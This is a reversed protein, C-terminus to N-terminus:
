PGAAKRRARVDALLRLIQRHLGEVQANLPDDPFLRGAKQTLRAARAIDKEAAALRRAVPRGAYKRAALRQRLEAVVETADPRRLIDEIVSEDM